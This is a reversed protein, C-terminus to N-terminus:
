KTGSCSWVSSIGWCVAVRSPSGDRRSFWGLWRPCLFKLVGLLLFGEGEKSMLIRDTVAAASVRDAFSDECLKM